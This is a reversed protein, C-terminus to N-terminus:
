AAEIVKVTEVAETAEIVKVAEDRWFFIMITQDNRASLDGISIGKLRVLFGELLIM